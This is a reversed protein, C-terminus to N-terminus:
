QKGHDAGGVMRRWLDMRQKERDALMMAFNAVDACEAIVCEPDVTGQEIEARLEEVEGELMEFLRGRSLGRADAKQQNMRLKSKMQDVFWRIRPALVHMSSM